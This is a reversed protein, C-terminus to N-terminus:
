GIFLNDRKEHCKRGEIVMNTLNWALESRGTKQCEDVSIIHAVDIPKCDNNKCTTCFPYGHEDIHQEHKKAKAQRVRYDIVSKEIYEGNSMPYRAM